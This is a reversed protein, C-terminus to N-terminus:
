QGISQFSKIYNLYFKTRPIMPNIKTNYTSFHRNMREVLDRLTKYFKKWRKNVELTVGSSSLLLENENENEHEIKKEKRLM